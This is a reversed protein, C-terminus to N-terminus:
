APYRRWFRKPGRYSETNSDGIMGVTMATGAKLGNLWRFLWALGFEIRDIEAGAVNSVLTGPGNGLTGVLSSSASVPPQTPTVGTSPLVAAVAGTALTPNAKADAAAARAATDVVGNGPGPAFAGAVNVAFVTQGQDEGLQELLVPALKRPYSSVLNYILNAGDFFFAGEPNNTLTVTSGATLGNVAVAGSGSLNSNALTLTNLAM